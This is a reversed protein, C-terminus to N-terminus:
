KFDIEKADHFLFTDSNEKIFSILTQNTNHHVSCKIRASAFYNHDLVAFLIGDGRSRM